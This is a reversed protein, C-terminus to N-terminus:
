EVVEVMLRGSKRSPRWERCFLVRERSLEWAQAEFLLTNFSSALNVRVGDDSARCSLKKVSPEVNGGTGESALGFGKMAVAPKGSSMGRKTSISNAAKWCSYM